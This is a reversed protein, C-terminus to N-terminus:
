LVCSSSQLGASFWPRCLTGIKKSATDEGAANTTEERNSGRARRTLNRHPARAYVIRTITCCGRTQVLLPRGNSAGAAPKTGSGCLDHRFNRDYSVRWAGVPTKDKGREWINLRAITSMQNNIKGFIVFSLFFVFDTKLFANEKYLFAISESM